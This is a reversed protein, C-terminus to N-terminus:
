QNEKERKIEQLMETVLGRLREIGHRTLHDEDRYCSRGDQAIITMQDADFFYPAHDLLRAGTASISRFMKEPNVQRARHQDISTRYEPLQSRRGVSWLLVDRAPTSGQLEPVQKVVWLVVGCEQCISALDILGETLFQLNSKETAPSLSQNTHRHVTTSFDPNFDLEANSYGNTYWSWRSVLILTRPRRTRLYELLEEQFRLQVRLDQHSEPRCVGPLPVQGHELVTQGTLGLESAVNNFLPALVAGHSDGWLIFDPRAVKDCSKQGVGLVPLTEFDYNEHIRVMSDTGNWTVDDLLTSSDNQFRTALGKTQIFLLSVAVVAVSMVCATRFLRRRPQLFTPARCPTEIFKWSLVALFFSLALAFTGHKWGLSGFYMKAFVIVPWHWLYLSYSILGIFAVPRVSLVRGVLTGGKTATAFIVSATGLVTPLAALGPFRTQSDYLFVPLLTAALGATAIVNDRRPSSEYRWPFIALMCGVLLEWARTPLLYFTPTQYHKTGYVSGALSVIAILALLWFLRKRSLNKCFVLLFPFFLYFQEEVALSWMHLLPKLEGPGAFYGTDRLFYINASLFTQAISSEGLDELENPLQLCYGAALTAMVVVISAPFIRRIRREWFEVLSFTEHELGRRIIGTILFGSIVFFVDVGIFGGPCGIGLHFLVVVTVALARLGDIDPRYHPNQM